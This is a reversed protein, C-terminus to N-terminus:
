TADEKGVSNLSNMYERFMKNIEEDTHSKALENYYMPKGIIIRSPKSAFHYTYIPLDENHRKHYLRALTLYGMNLDKEIIEFYGENSNEPFFALPLGEELVQMCYKFTIVIRKDFYIPVAGAFRYLMPIISGLITALLFSVIRPRNCKKRYFTHYLYNWRSRYGECMQHAATVMFLESMFTRYTFPGAASRHNAILICKKPLEKNENLNIFQPRKLVTRFLVRLIKDTLTFKKKVKFKKGM